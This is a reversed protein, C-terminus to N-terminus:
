PLLVNVNGSQVLADSLGDDFVEFGTDGRPRFRPLASRATPQKGEVGDAVAAVVADVNRDKPICAAVIGRLAPKGVLLGLRRSRLYPRTFLARM